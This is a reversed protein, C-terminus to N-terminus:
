PRHWENLLRVKMGTCLGCPEGDRSIFYYGNFLDSIQGSISSLADALSMGEQMAASVQRKFGEEDSRLGGKQRQYNKLGADSIAYCGPGDYSLSHEVRGEIWQGNLLIALGMGSSLDAGTEGDDLAYRGRNSSAVLTHVTEDEPNSM